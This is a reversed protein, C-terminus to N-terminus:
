KKGNKWEKHVLGITYEWVIDIEKQELETDFEKNVIKGMEEKSELVLRERDGKKKKGEEMLKDLKSEGRRYIELLKDSLEKNHHLRETFLDTLDRGLNVEWIHQYVEHREQESLKGNLKMKKIIVEEQKDKTLRISRDRHEGLEESSMKKLEGISKMHLVTNYIGVLEKVFEKDEKIKDIISM